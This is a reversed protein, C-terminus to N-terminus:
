SRRELGARKVVASFIRHRKWWSQQRLYRGLVALTTETAIIDENDAKPDDMKALNAALQHLDIKM